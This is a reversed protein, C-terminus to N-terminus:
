KQSLLADTRYNVTSFSIENLECHIIKMANLITNTTDNLVLWLTPTKLALLAHFQKSLHCEFTILIVILHIQLLYSKKM